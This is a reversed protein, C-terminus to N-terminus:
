YFLQKGVQKMLVVNGQNCLKVIVNFSLLIIDNEKLLM